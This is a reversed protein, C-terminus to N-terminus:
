YRVSRIAERLPSALFACVCIGKIFKYLRHNLLVTLNLTLCRSSRWSHAYIQTHCTAPRSGEELGAPALDDRPKFAFAPLRPMAAVVVDILVQSPSPADDHRPM